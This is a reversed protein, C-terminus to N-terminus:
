PIGAAAGAGGADDGFWDLDLRDDDVPTPDDLALLLLSTAPRFGSRRYFPVSRESPSLVLRVFGRVRAHEIAADLLRRGIGANRYRYLVFANGLYGWRGPVQGPRPMRDFVAVNLMGVPEGDVEAFWTLRRPFEREWWQAFQKGFDPDEILGYQEVSWIRRLEALRDVDSLEARRIVLDPM